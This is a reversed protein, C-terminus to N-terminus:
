QKKPESVPHELDMAWPCTGSPQLTLPTRMPPDLPTPHFVHTWVRGPFDYTRYTEMLILM